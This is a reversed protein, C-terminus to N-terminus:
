IVMRRREVCYTKYDLFLGIDEANVFGAGTDGAGPEGKGTAGGGTRSLRL